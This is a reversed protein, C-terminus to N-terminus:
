LVEHDSLYIIKKDDISLSLQDGVQFHNEQHHLQLQLAGIQAMIEYFAGMFRIKKIRATYTGSQGPHLKIDEARICVMPHSTKPLKLQNAEQQSLLNCPGFLQAVYTNTPQRYIEEPSAMQLLKGQHMVAVQDSMSLADQPDHSVMITTIDLEELISLIEHKLHSKLSLDINSFPEDMLLLVPEEALARALAVRQREGGSLERPYHAHLHSLKCIELLEAAREEQYEKVYASLIRMINQRVNLNPSLEYHQHVMKIDPHGPVLRRSPGKVWEGNLYVKGQDAEILGAIIKLLTTKGSGSEGTLTLIQGKELTFHIHQVAPQSKEEYQKSVDSVKLIPPM